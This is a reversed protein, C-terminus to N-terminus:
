MAQRPVSICRYRQSCRKCVRPSGKFNKTKTWCDARDMKRLFVLKSACWPCRRLVFPNDKANSKLQTLKRLADDRRNPSAASGVWLGLTFPKDGLGPKQKRLMEMACFLTAAREFQQATLLRLTYRMLVTAGSSEEGRLRKLFLLYAIVGLYAETKGGGTPFWILDVEEREPHDDTALGCLSM